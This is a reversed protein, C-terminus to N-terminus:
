ALYKWFNNNYNLGHDFSKTRHKSIRLMRYKLMEYTFPHNPVIKLCSIYVNLNIYNYICAYSYYIILIDTLKQMDTDTAPTYRLSDYSFYLWLLKNIGFWTTVNIAYTIENEPLNFKLSIVSVMFPIYKRCDIVYDM